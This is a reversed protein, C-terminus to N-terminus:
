FQYPKWDEPTDDYGVRRFGHAHHALTEDSKELRDHRYTVVRCPQARDFRDSDYELLTILDGTKWLRAEKLAIEPAKRFAMRLKEQQPQSRIEELTEETSELTSQIQKLKESISQFAARIDDEM